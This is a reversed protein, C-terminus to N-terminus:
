FSQSMSNTYQDLIENIEGYAKISGHELWVAKNCLERLLENSHSACVLVEIKNYFAQLRAHAKHAFRQDGVSIGEDLLLIDPQLSTAIAFCLRAAMGSSYTRVPLHIFEELESFKVIEPIRKPIEHKPVGFYTCITKINEIGTDDKDMGPAQNFLPTVQGNCYITGLLPKYIGALVYLLTSKGAGNHGVLALRDGSYLSLNINKLANVTVMANGQQSIEGGIYKNRLASRFSRDQGVIPISLSLNEVKIKITM